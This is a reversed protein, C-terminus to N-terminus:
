KVALSLEFMPLLMAIVIFGVVVGMVLIMVPELLSTLVKITEDTEREYFKAVEDMAEDLRGSEEGVIILNTMFLPFAPTGRLGRGLSGGEIIEGRIREMERRLFHNNLVPSGIELARLVPIGSKILLEMTRSFRAIEFKLTFGKVLPLRLSLASWLLSAQESRFRIFITVAAAAIGAVAWGWPQKAAESMGILIRTPAPLHEGMNSFLSALRPIVFAFMFIVTGVGTAGMLAPYAMATRVRSLIEEQRQRYDAIRLLAEQLTGSDEGTRVLAIMIPPFLRPYSVLVASLSEGNKIREHMDQLVSRFRQHSSQESIIELGRLIPVGAKLLSALQRSFLTVESSKVRGFLHIRGKAKVPEAIVRRPGEPAGAKQVTRADTEELRVPLLGQAGLAEIASEQSAAEITGEVTEKPGKKAVYSFVPM